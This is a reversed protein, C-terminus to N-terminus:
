LVEGEVLCPEGTVHSLVHLHLDRKLHLVASSVGLISFIYVFTFCLFFFGETPGLIFSLHDVERQQQDILEVKPDSVEHHPSKERM